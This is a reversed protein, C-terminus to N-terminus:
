LDFLLGCSLYILPGSTNGRPMVYGFGGEFIFRQNKQVNAQTGLNILAFLADNPVNDGTGFLNGPYGKAAGLRASAYYNWTKGNITGGTVAIDCNVSKGDSDDGMGLGTELRIRDALQYRGSLKATLTGKDNRVIGAADIGFDFDQTFGYKYRGFWGQGGAHAGPFLVFGTGVGLGVESESKEVTKPGGFTMLPSPPAFSVCGALTQGLVLIIIVSSQCPGHRPLSDTSFNSRRRPTPRSSCIDYCNESLRKIMSFITFQFVTKLM